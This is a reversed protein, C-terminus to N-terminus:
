IYWRESDRAQVAEEYPRADSFWCWREFGPNDAAYAQMAIVAQEKTLIGDAVVDDLASQLGYVAWKALPWSLMSEDFGDDLHPLVAAALRKEANKGSM